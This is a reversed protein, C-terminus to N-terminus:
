KYGIFTSIEAERKSVANATGAEPEARKYANRKTKRFQNYQLTYNKTQHKSTSSMQKTEIAGRTWTVMICSLARPSSSLRM